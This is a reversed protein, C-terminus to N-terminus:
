LTAIFDKINEIKKRIDAHCDKFWKANETEGEKSALAEGLVYPHIHRKLDLVECKLFDKLKKKSVETKEIETAFYLYKQILYKCTMAFGFLSAGGLAPSRRGEM